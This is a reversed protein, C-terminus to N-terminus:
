NIIYRKIKDIIESKCTPNGNDDDIHRHNIPLALLVCDYILRAVNIEHKNKDFSLLEAVDSAADLLNLYVDDEFYLEQNYEELCLECTLIVEGEVDTEIRLDSHNKTINMNVEIKGNHIESDEFESFFEKGIIFNFDTPINNSLDSIKINFNKM